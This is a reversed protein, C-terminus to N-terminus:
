NPAPPTLALCRYNSRHVVLNYSSRWGLFFLELLEFHWRREIWWHELQANSVRWSWFRKNVKAEGGGAFKSLWISCCSWSCEFTPADLPISCFLWVACTGAYSYHGLDGCLVHQLHRIAFSFGYQHDKGVVSDPTINPFGVHLHSNATVLVLFSSLFYM